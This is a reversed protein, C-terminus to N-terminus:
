PQPLAEFVRFEFLCLWGKHDSSEQCLLRIHRAKLPTFRIVDTNGTQGTKNPQRFIERWQTGDNSVQLVYTRAYYRWWTLTAAGITQESGLDVSLWQEGKTDSNWATILDGDVAHGPNSQPGASSTATKQCTLNKVGAAVRVVSSLTKKGETDWAVAALDYFGPKINSWTFAYQGASNPRAEGLKAATALVGDTDLPDRVTWDKWPGPLLYYALNKLNGNRDGAVAQLEVSAGIEAGDLPQLMRVDPAVNHQGFLPLQDSTLYRPHNCCSRIWEPPNRQHGAFWALDYLWNPTDVALKEPNVLGASECLAHMKGPAVGEIIEYAKKYSDKLASEYGDSPNPYIDIGAIDVYADGPYYRKRFAIEDALNAAAKKEARQQHYGGCRAGPNFVWILNNLKREKVFYDFVM